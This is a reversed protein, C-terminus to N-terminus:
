IFTYGSHQVSFVFTFYYQIFPKLRLFLFFRLYAYITYAYVYPTGGSYLSLNRYLTKKCCWNLTCKVKVCLINQFCQIRFALLTCVIGTHHGGLPSSQALTFLMPAEYVRLDRGTFTWIYKDSDDYAKFSDWLWM